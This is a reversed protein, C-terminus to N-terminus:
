EASSKITAKVGIQNRKRNKMTEIFSTFYTTGITGMIAKVMAIPILVSSEAEKLTPLLRFLLNSTYAEDRITGM